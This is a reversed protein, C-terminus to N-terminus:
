SILFLHIITGITTQAMVETIFGDMVEGCDEQMENCGM